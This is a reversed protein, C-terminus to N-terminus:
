GEVALTSSHQVVKGDSNKTSVALYLINNQYKAATNQQNVNYNFTFPLSVSNVYNAEQKVFNLLSYPPDLPDVPNYYCVVADIELDLEDASFDIKTNLAELDGTISDAGVVPNQVDFVFGGPTIINQNTPRDTTVLAFNDSFMTNAASIGPDKAKQWMDKLSPVDLATKCFAITVAFKQQIALAAATPPATRPGPRAAFYTKGNRTRASLNGLKGSLNGLISGTLRAM